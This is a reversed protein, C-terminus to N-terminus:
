QGGGRPGVPNEIIDGPLAQPAPAVTPGSRGPWLASVQEVTM